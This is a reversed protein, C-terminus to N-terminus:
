RLIYGIVGLADLQSGPDILVGDDLGGTVLEELKTEM